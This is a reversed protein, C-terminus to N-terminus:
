WLYNYTDLFKYMIFETLLKSSLGVIGQWSANSIVIISTDLVGTYDNVQQWTGPYIVVANVNPRLICSSNQTCSNRMTLCEQAM